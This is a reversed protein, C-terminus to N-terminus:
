KKKSRIPVAVDHWGIMMEEWTQPGWTVPKTPDPNALNEDSNDYYATCLMKTGKPVNKREALVFSTQWNFDYQPVDLVIEKTGDPYELEYRFSKGRMHMHPFMSLLQVDQDFVKEAVEKHNNENPPIYLGTNIANTTWTQHTVDKEDMFVLGLSSRDKQPSGIPTYHLEFILKSGAPIRKAWGEPGVIPRTGPAFGALLEHQGINSSKAEPSQIYVIIHHVVAKNGPMCEVMKVWKDETFGPDVVHYQYPEVGESRVDVPQDTMYIVQDPQQAMFWGERFELPQPMGAPDGQPSGNEVWTYILQKEKESLRNENSFSGHKPNAHWPPMRNETIVEAIMEGWGAAEEYDTLAFPAIQGERHCEICRSQFLRSIQNSFTVLSDENVKKARGIICGRAKTVSISVDKGSLLEDLAIALDARKEAPSSLGVGSGFTYQADIRGQYRITRDRDLVFVEPTRTAGFQDAVKNNLDKLIPFSIGHIRAHASLEAISDQVNSSIGLVVVDKDAYRNSIRQIRGSYLKALPCETGLFYAVIIKDGYDSLSHVKGRFDKLTFDEVVTPSPRDVAEAASVANPSALIAFALRLLISLKNELVPVVFFSPMISGM